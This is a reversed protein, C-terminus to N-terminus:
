QRKQKLVECQKGDASFKLHHQWGSAPQKNTKLSEDWKEDVENWTYTVLRYVKGEFIYIWLSWEDTTSDKCLRAYTVDTEKNVKDIAKNKVKQTYKVHDHRKLPLDDSSSTDSGSKGSAPPDDRTDGVATRISAGSMQNEFSSQGTREKDGGSVATDNGLDKPLSSARETAPKEEKAGKAPAAFTNTSKESTDGPTEGRDKQDLPGASRDASMTPKILRSPGTTAADGATKEKSDKSGLIGSACATLWMSCIIVSIASFWARRSSLHRIEKASRHSCVPHCACGLRKYFFAAGPSTSNWFEGDPRCGLPLRKGHFLCCNGLLNPPNSQRSEEVPQESIPLFRKRKGLSFPYFARKGIKLGM